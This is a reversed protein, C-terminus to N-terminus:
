RTFVINANEPLLNSAAEEDDAFAVNEANEWAWTKGIIIHRLPLAPGSLAIEDSIRVIVQASFDDKRALQSYVVYEDGARYVKQIRISWAPSPVKLSVRIAQEKVATDPQLDEAFLAQITLGTLAILSFQVKRLSTSNM